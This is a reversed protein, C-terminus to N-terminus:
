KLELCEISDSSLTGTAAGTVPDRGSITRIAEAWPRAPSTAEWEVVVQIGVMTPADNPLGLLQRVQLITSQHAGLQIAASAVPYSTGSNDYLRVGLITVSGAEGLNWVRVQANMLTTASSSITAAPCGWVGRTAASAPPALALVPLLLAPLLYRAKM